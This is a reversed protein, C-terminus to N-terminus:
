VLFRVAFPLVLGVVFYHGEASVQKRLKSGFVADKGAAAIPGEGPREKGLQLGLAIGLGGLIVWQTLFRLDPAAIYLFSLSLGVGFSHVEYTDLLKGKATLFLNSEKIRSKLSV